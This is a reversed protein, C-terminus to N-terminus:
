RWGELVRAMEDALGIMATSPTHALPDDLIEIRHNRVAPVDLSGLRGLVAMVEDPTRVSATTRPSRPMILIIGDPAIALVDEITLEQFANGTAIAPIGGVAELLQHHFSGPGLASPPSTDALLLIRGASAFGEGRPTWARDMAKQLEQSKATADPGGGRHVILAIQAVERRIDALTLLKADHLVWGDSMAQQTLRPPLERTGWQMIVCDPKVAILSELDIGSQDGCVPLSENLVMEFAHRGVVNPAVGLDQLIVSVAPSLSVVRGTPFVPAPAPKECGWLGFATLAVALGRLCCAVFTM